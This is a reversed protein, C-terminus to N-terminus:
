RQRFRGAATNRPQFTPPASPRGRHASTARPAAFRAAPRQHLRSSKQHRGFSGPLYTAQYVPPAEIVVEPEPAITVPEPEFAPIFNSASRPITSEAASFGGVAKRGERLERAVDSLSRPTASVPTRDEGGTLTLSVTPSPVAGIAALLALAMLM